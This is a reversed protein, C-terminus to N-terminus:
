VGPQREGPAPQDEEDWGRGWPGHGWPGHRWFFHRMWRGPGFGHRFGPGFGMGPGFGRAHKLWEKMKEKDGKIEIRYGDDTEVVRFEQIVKEAM